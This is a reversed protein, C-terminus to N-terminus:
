LILFITLITLFEGTDEENASEHSSTMTTDTSTHPEDNIDSIEELDIVSRDMGNNSGKSKVRFRTGPLLLVEEDSDHQTYGRVDKGDLSEISCFVSDDTLFHKIINSSMSCSTISWCVLEENKKLKEFIDMPLGRWITKKVTPLKNLANKFLKLFGLWPEIVAQDGSQLAQNLVEPLSHRSYNDTYLYLAASQDETLDHDSSLHCLQKARKIHDDLQDVLSLAPELATELSLIGDSTSEDITPFPKDNYEFQVFRAM